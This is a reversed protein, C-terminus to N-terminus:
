RTAGALDRAIGAELSELPGWDKACALGFANVCSSMFNRVFRRNSLM